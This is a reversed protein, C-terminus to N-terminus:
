ELKLLSLCQNSFYCHFFLHTHDDVGSGYILSRNSICVGIKALRDSTLRQQFALSWCIFRYKPVNLRNWVLNDWHVDAKDGMLKDYVITISYSSM